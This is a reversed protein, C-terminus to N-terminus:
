GGRHSMTATIVTVIDCRPPQRPPWAPTPASAPAPTFPSAARSPPAAGAHRTPATAGPPRPAGPRSPGPPRPPARPAQCSPAAPLAPTHRLLRLPCPAIYGRSVRLGARLGPLAGARLPAPRSGAGPPRPQDVDGFRDAHVHGGHGPHEVAVRGLRDPRLNVAPDQARCPLLPVPGVRQGPRQLSALGPRDREDDRQQAVRDPYPELAAGQLPGGIAAVHDHDHLLGPLVGLRRAGVTVQDLLAARVAQQQGGRQPVGLM